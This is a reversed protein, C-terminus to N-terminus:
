KIIIFWSIFIKKNNLIRSFISIIVLLTIEIHITVIIERKNRVVSFFVNRIPGFSSKNIKCIQISVGVLYIATTEKQKQLEM